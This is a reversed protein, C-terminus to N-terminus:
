SFALNRSGLKDLDPLNQGIKTLIQSFKPWNQGINALNAIKAVFKAFNKRFKVHYLAFISFFGM